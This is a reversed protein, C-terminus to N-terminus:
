LVTITRDIIFLYLVHIAFFKEFVQLFHNGIDSVVSATSVDLCENDVEYWLRQQLCHASHGNRVITDQNESQRCYHLLQHLLLPAAKNKQKRVGVKKHEGM